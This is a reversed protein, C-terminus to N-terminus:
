FQRAYTLIMLQNRIGDKVWFQPALWKWKLSGMNNPLTYSVVPGASANAYKNGNELSGTYDSPPHDNTIQQQFVGAIGVELDPRLYRGVGWDVSLVQGTTYDTDQNKLPFSYYARFSADWPGLTGGHDPTSLWTMGVNPSIIWLNAGTNVPEDKDYHGVPLKMALGASINLGLPMWGYPGASPLAPNGEPPNAGAHSVNKSWNFVDVYMDQIGSSDSNYAPDLKVWAHSYAGQILSSVHGGFIEDPYVYQLTAAVSYVELRANVSHVRDGHVDFLSRGSAPVLSLAGYLGPPPLLAAGLDNGGAPTATIVTEGALVPTAALTFVLPFSRCYKKLSSINNKIINSKRGVLWRIYILSYINM